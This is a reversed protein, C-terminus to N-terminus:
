ARSRRSAEAEEGERVRALDVDLKVLAGAYLESLPARALREETVGARRLVQIWVLLEGTSPPKELGMRRLELLRRLAAGVLREEIEGRDFRAAVIRALQAEDPFEIRHFVCRRLFADPLQRESNSTIIVIPRHAAAHRRGVEPVEFSVEGDLVGLLDNPFDRPAKDIEDILVVRPGESSLIAEGLAQYRVYNSPEAARPDRVQADYFRRMSDFTYLCDRAQHESRTSFRLPAGLGLQRAVSAALATKGTGPEGTVLLPQEAALATNVAAALGASAVYAPDGGARYRAFRYGEDLQREM